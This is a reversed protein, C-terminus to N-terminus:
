KLAFNLANENRRIESWKNIVAFNLDKYMYMLSSM